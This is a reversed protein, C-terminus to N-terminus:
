EAVVIRTRDEGGRHLTEKTESLSLRVGQSEKCLREQDGETRAIALAGCSSMSRPRSGGDEHEAPGM